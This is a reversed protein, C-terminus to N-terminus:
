AVQSITHMGCFRCMGEFRTVNGLRLAHLAFGGSRCYPCREDVEAWEGGENGRASGLRPHRTQEVGPFADNQAPSVVTLPSTRQRITLSAFAMQTQQAGISTVSPFGITTSTAISPLIGASLNM